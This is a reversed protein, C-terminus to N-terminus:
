WGAPFYSNASSGGGGGTGLNSFKVKKKKMGDASDEIMLLDNATPVTKETLTSFDNARRSLSDGRLTKDATFKNM